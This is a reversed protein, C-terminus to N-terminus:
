FHRLLTFICALLVLAQFNILKTEYRVVIRKYHQLHAFLNEIKWRRKYRRLKRRDQTPPKKRNQKHPAILEIDQAHLQQDLPDSDYAKDAIIRQPKQPTFTQQLTPEVLKSEHPNASACHIACPRGRREVMAMIKTGKGIKTKGVGDGGKKAKVFSADM